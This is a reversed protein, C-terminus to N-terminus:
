EVTKADVDTAWPVFYVNLEGPREAASLKQPEPKLAKAAKYKTTKEVMDFAKLEKICHPEQYRPTFCLHTITASVLTTLPSVLYIGTEGEVVRGFLPDKPMEPVSTVPQDEKRKRKKNHPENDAIKTTILTRFAASLEKGKELLDVSKANEQREILVEVAVGMYAQAPGATFPLWDSPELWQVNAIVGKHEKGSLVRHHKKTRPSSQDTGPTSPVAPECGGKAGDSPTPSAPEATVPSDTKGADKKACSLQKDVEAYFGAMINPWSFPVDKFIQGVYGHAATKDAQGGEVVKCATLLVAIGAAREMAPNKFKEKDAMVYATQLPRIVGDSVLHAVKKPNVIYERKFPPFLSAFIRRPNEESTRPPFYLKQHHKQIFIARGLTSTLIQQVHPPPNTCRQNQCFVLFRDLATALCFKPNTNFDLIYKKQEFHWVNKM